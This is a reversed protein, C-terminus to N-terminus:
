YLVGAGDGATETYGAPELVPVEPEEAEVVRVVRTACADTIKARLAPSPESEAPAARCRAGIDGTLREAGALCALGTGDAEAAFRVGRAGFQRNLHNLAHIRATSAEPAMRRTARHM